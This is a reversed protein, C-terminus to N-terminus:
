GVYRFTRGILRQPLAGLVGDSDRYEETVYLVCQDGCNEEATRSPTTQPQQQLASSGAVKVWCDTCGTTYSLLAPQPRVQSDYESVQLTHFTTKGKVNQPCIVLINCTWDWAINWNEMSSTSYAAFDGYFMLRGAATHQVDSSSASTTSAAASEIAIGGSQALMRNARSIVAPDASESYGFMGFLSTRMITTGCLEQGLVFWTMNVFFATSTQGRTGPLARADSHAHSFDRSTSFSRTRGIPQRTHTHTHMDSRRCTTDQQM